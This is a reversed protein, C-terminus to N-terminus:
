DTSQKITGNNTDRRAITGHLIADYVAYAEDLNHIIWYNIEETLNSLHGVVEAFEKQGKRYRDETSDLKIEIFHVGTQKGLIILDCLRNMSRQMKRYTNFNNVIFGFERLGSFTTSILKAENSISM